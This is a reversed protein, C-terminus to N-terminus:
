FPIFDSVTTALDLDLNLYRQTTAVNAHGLLKSIQTIPIGAEYGLQAYTRRLDHPALRPKGIAAGASRVIEFIGIASISEGMGGGKTMSRAIYGSHGVLTGWADLAAALKDNIPVVRDKAGKGRVNLATRFKDGLPLTVVDEFALNVLEERRLGAGVLLGLIVKDRQGQTTNVNCSDLLRKVESQTLWTHAKQGKTAEVQIAENLAEIRYVTAQVAAVTEPTAGAKAKLAVNEGWLRVAAKLFARSSKPLNAAYNALAQADAPSHGTALYNTIAKRYQAKTTPQLKPNSEIIALIDARAQTPESAILATM